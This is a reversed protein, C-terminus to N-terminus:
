GSRPRQKPIHVSTTTDVYNSSDSYRNDSSNMMWKCMDRRNEFMPSPTVLDAIFAFDFRKNNNPDTTSSSECRRGVYTSPFHLRDRANSQRDEMGIVNCNYLNTYNVMYWDSRWHSAVLLHDKGQSRQFWPASQLLDDAYRLLELGCLGHRQWCLTAGYYKRQRENMILDVVTNFLGPVIFLKAQSANLTRMPHQLAAQAFWYDESHKVEQHLLIWDKATAIVTSTDNSHVVVSEDVWLLEQYVYFPVNLLM